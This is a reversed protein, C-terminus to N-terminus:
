FVSLTTMCSTAVHRSGRTVVMWGEFPCWIILRKVRPRAKAATATVPTRDTVKAAHLEPEEDLELEDAAASDDAAGASDDAAGASDDAAGSPPVMATESMVFSEVFGNKTAM